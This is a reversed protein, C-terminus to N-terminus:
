HLHPWTFERKVIFADYANLLEELFCSVIIDSAKDVEWATLYEIDKQLLEEVEKKVMFLYRTCYHINDDHAVDRIISIIKYSEDNEYKRIIEDLLRARARRKHEKIANRIIGVVLMALLDVWVGIIVGIAFPMFSTHIVSIAIMTWGIRIGITCVVRKWTEDLGDLCFIEFAKIVLAITAATTAAALIELITNLMTFEKRTSSM